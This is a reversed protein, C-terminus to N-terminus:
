RKFSETYETTAYINPQGTFTACFKVCVCRGADEKAIVLGHFIYKPVVCDSSLDLSSRVHAEVFAHGINSVRRRIYLKKLADFMIGYERIHLFDSDVGDVELQVWRGETGEISHM